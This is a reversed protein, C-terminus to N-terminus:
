QNTRSLAAEAGSRLAADGGTDGAITQLTARAVEDHFNGLARIAALRADPGFPLSPDRAVSLITPLADPNIVRAIANICPGAEMASPLRFFISHVADATGIVGLTDVIALALPSSYDNKEQDALQSLLPVVEPKAQYRIVGLLTDREQENSSLRYRAVTELLAANGQMGALSRQALEVVLANSSTTLMDFLAAIAAPNTISFAAEAMRHQKEDDQTAQIAEVIKELADPTGLHVWDQVAQLEMVDDPQSIAPATAPTDGGGSVLWTDVEERLAEPPAGNSITGSGISSVQAVKKSDITSTPTKGPQHGDRTHPGPVLLYYTAVASMVGASTGLWFVKRM